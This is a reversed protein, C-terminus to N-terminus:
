RKWENNLAGIVKQYNEVTTDGATLRQDDVFKQMKKADELAENVRHAMDNVQDVEFISDPSVFNPNHLTNKFGVILM